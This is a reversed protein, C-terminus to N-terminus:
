TSRNTHSHGMPQTSGASLKSDQGLGVWTHAAFGIRGYTSLKANTNESATGEVIVFAFKGIM